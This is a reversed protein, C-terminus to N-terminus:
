IHILSLHTVAVYTITDWANHVGILLLILTIAAIASLCQDPQWSVLIAAVALASYALLPLIAYWIWDETDPRYGSQKRAHRIVGVLYGVGIVGCVALCLGADSLAQWPASVIASILFAAFFHVMTPTAFARIERMSGTARMQAVLAVVVFQLGTLAGASSGVIVYFNAWRALQPVAADPMVLLM